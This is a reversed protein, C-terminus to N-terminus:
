KLSLVRSDTSTTHGSQVHVLPGERKTDLHICTLAKCDSIPVGRATSRSSRAKVGTDVGPPGNAVHGEEGGRAVVNTLAM